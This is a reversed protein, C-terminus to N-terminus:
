GRRGGRRKGAKKNDHIHKSENDRGRHKKMRKSSTRFIDHLVNALKKECYQGSWHKHCECTEPAVCRGHRGCSNTCLAKECSRGTFDDACVCIGPAICTGGNFCRPSCLAQKCAPGFFGDPCDCIGHEDCFGGNECSCEPTPVKDCQKRFKVKLPSAKIEKGLRLDDITVTVTAVAYGKVKNTCPFTVQFDTQKHPVEGSTPISLFPHGMVETDSSLLHGFTYHYTNKAEWNLTLKEIGVRVIPLDDDEADRQYTIDQLYPSQTGNRIVYIEARIGLLREVQMADLWLSISDSTTLSSSSASGIAGLCLLCVVGLM